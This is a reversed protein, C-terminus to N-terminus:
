GKSTCEATVRLRYAEALQGTIPGPKEDGVAHREIRCVPMVEMISNTLFVEEAGLLDNITLPAERYAIGEAGALELVVKRAVGPLVPTDVPPTKAVRDKVVFINSISGEALLNETTFWLAEGCGRLQADRLAILRPFYSTTKHGCTPDYRGQKFGCILVTMGRQYLEASYATMPGATILVTPEGPPQGQGEAAARVSGPTVMLRVRAEKLGNAELLDSIGRRWPGVDEPLSIRLAEASGRLRQLHDDLRFVVGNYARMTEFLGVGHLLGADFASVRAEAAAVLQGNLFVYESPM